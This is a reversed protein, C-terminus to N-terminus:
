EAKGDASGVYEDMFWEATKTIQLHVGNEGFTFEASMNGFYDDIVYSRVLFRNEDKWVGANLCRYGKGLPTNIRKGSYHTEPFVTDAYQGLGFVFVKEGRPTSYTVRGGDEAFTITFDTMGMPNEGLVYKVGDIKQAMPSIKEGFPMSVELSGLLTQLSDYADADLPLPEYTMRDLVTKWLTRVIPIQYGDADGQM